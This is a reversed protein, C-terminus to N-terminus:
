RQRRSRMVLLAGGGLLILAIAILGATDAGTSALVQRGPTHSVVSGGPPSNQQPPVHAAVQERLRPSTTVTTRPPPTHSGVTERPTTTTRTTTTPTSTPTFSAVEESKAKVFVNYDWSEGDNDGTPLTILFDVIVPPDMGMVPVPTESVLYLGIPLGAFFAEGAANTVATVDHTFGREQAEPVTIERAAAWGAETTLNIGQVQKLTFTVGEIVPETGDDYPNGPTKIITLDVTRSQDIDAIAQSNVMGIVTQASGTTMPIGLSLVAAAVMAVVIRPTKLITNM